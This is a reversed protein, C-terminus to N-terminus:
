FINKLHQFHNKFLLSKHHQNQYSSLKVLSAPNEIFVNSTKIKLKEHKSLISAKIRKRKKGEFLDGLQLYRQYFDRAKRNNIKRQNKINKFPVYCMKSLWTNLIRNILGTNTTKMTLNKLKCICRKILGIKTKEREYKSVTYIIKYNYEINFFHVDTM